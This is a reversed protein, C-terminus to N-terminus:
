LYAGNTINIFADNVIEKLATTVDEECNAIDIDEGDITETRYTGNPVKVPPNLFIMDGDFDIDNGDKKATVFVRLYFDANIRQTRIDKIM